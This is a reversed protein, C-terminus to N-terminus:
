FNFLTIYRYFPVNFCSFICRLIFGYFCHISGTIVSFFSVSFFFIVLFILKHYVGYSLVFRNWFPMKRSLYFLRMSSFANCFAFYKKFIVECKARTTTTACILMNIETNIGDKMYYICLEQKNNDNFCYLNQTM